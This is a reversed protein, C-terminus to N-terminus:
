GWLVKADKGTRERMYDMYRKEDDGLLNRLIDVKQIYDSLKNFGWKDERHLVVGLSALITMPVFKIQRNWMYIREADTLRRYPVDKSLFMYEHYGKDGDLKLEIGTEQELCELPTEGRNFCEQMVEMAGAFRRMIRQERWGYDEWLVTFCVCSMMNALRDKEKKQRQWSKRTGM